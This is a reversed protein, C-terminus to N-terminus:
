SNFFLLDAGATNLYIPIHIANAGSAANRAAPMSRKALWAILAYMIMADKVNAPREKAAEEASSGEMELELKWM